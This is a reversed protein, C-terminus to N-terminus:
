PGVSYLALDVRQGATFTVGGGGGGFSINSGSVTGPGEVKPIWGFPSSSFNAAIYFTRGPAIVSPPVTILLSPFGNAYETSDFKTGLYLWTRSGPDTGAFAADLPLVSAYDTFNSTSFCGQAAGIGGSASFGGVSPFNLTATKPSCSQGSLGTLGGGGCAALFVTGLLLAAARQINHM